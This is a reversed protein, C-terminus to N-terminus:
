SQIFVIDRFYNTNNFSSNPFNGSTTNFSGASIPASIHGRSIAFSFDQIAYPYGNIANVSVRYFTNVAVILPTALYKEKWGSSSDTPFVVSALLTGSDSWIKGTHVANDNPSKYYRIALIQGPVTVSFRMGLELASNDTSDALFPDKFLSELERTGFTRFKPNSSSLEIM